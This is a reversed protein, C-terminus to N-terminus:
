QAGGLCATGTAIERCVSAGGPADCWRKHDPFSSGLTAGTPDNMKCYFSCRGHPQGTAVVCIPQEGPHDHGLRALSTLVFTTGEWAWIPQGACDAATNCLRALYPTTSAQPPLPVVVVGADTTSADPQTSADQVAGDVQADPVAGGDRTVVAADPTGTSADVKPQSADAPRTSGDREQIGGDQTGVPASGSDQGSGAAGADVVPQDDYPQDGGM